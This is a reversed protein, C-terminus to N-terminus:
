LNGVVLVVSELEANSYVTVFLCLVAAALLITPPISDDRLSGGKPKTQHVYARGRQRSTGTPEAIMGTPLSRTTAITVLRSMASSASALMCCRWISTMALGLRVIHTLM